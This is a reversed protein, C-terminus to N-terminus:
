ALWDSNGMNDMEGGEVAPIKKARAYSIEILVGEQGPQCWFKRVEGAAVQSDGVEFFGCEGMVDLVAKELNDKDPKTHALEGWRKVELIPMLFTMDVCLAGSLRSLGKRQQVLSFDARLRQKWMKLGKTANSYIQGNANHRARTQAHPKGSVFIQMLKQTEIQMM